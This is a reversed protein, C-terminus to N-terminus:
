IVPFLKRQIGGYSVFTLKVASALSNVTAAAVMPVIVASIRWKDFGFDQWKVNSGGCMRMFSLHSRVKVVM